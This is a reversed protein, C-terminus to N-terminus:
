STIVSKTKVSKESMAKLTCRAHFWTAAKTQMTPATNKTKM